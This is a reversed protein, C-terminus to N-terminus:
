HVVKFFMVIFGFLAIINFSFLGVFWNRYGWMINVKDKMGLIEGEGHLLTCMSTIKSEIRDIQRRDRREEMIERESSKVM